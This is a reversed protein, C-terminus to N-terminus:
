DPDVERQSLEHFIPYCALQYKDDRIKEWDGPNAKMANEATSYLKLELSEYCESKEYIWIKM